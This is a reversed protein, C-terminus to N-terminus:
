KSECYKKFNDLIAQWGKRQLEISNEEESDFETIVNTSKDKNEFTVKVKRGDNMKYEILENKKVATYIGTFDFGALNDKAEMRYFFKGGVKLDNKAKPTHWDSSANNWKKIYVPKTYYEWVKKIPANIESKVTIKEM